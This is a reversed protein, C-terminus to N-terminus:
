EAAPQEMQHQVAKIFDDASDVGLSKAKKLDQLTGEYDKKYYRAVARNYYLEGKKPDQEAPKPAPAPAKKFQTLKTGRRTAMGQYKKAEAEWDITKGDEAVPLAPVEAIDEDDIAIPEHTDNITDM